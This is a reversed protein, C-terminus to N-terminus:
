LREDAGDSVIWRREARRASWVEERQAEAWCSPSRREAEPLEVPSPMALLRVRHEAAHLFARRQLECDSRM